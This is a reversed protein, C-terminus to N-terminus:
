RMLELVLQMSLILLCEILRYVHFVLKAPLEDVALFLFSVQQFSNHM